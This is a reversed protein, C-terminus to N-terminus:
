YQGWKLFEDIAISIDSMDVSNDKNIDAAPNWNQSGPTGMFVEIIISLDAMDVTGDKNVDAILVVEFTRLSTAYSTNYWSTAHITYNGLLGGNDSTRFPLSFSGLAVSPSADADLTIAFTSSREPCYAIGGYQPWNTLAVAYLHATGLAAGSPIAEEIWNHSSMTNHPELTENIMLMAAFPIGSSDYLNLTVIVSHSSADNNRVTVKFGAARGRRFGSVPNGDIDCAYAAIIEVSWPGSPESGTNLTRMVFRHDPDDGHPTNIQVAVLGDPVPSGNFTLTGNIIINGGLNYSKEATITLVSGLPYATQILSLMVILIPIVLVTKEVTKRMKNRERTAIYPVSVPNYVKNRQISIPSLM